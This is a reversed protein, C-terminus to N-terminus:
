DGHAAKAEGAQAKRWVASRLTRRFFYHLMEALIGVVVSPRSLTSQGRTRPYYAMPYEVIKLGARRAEILMEADIFSGESALEMVHAIRRPIVKCAFNVDRLRLGFLTRILLNYGKTLVWRRAGEGRNLRCGAIVRDGAALAILKPMLSFDFPLDADTYLILDGRAARLGSRIAGGLGRNEAHRVLRIRPERAAAEQALAATRDRSGDDVLVLELFAPHSGVERFIAEVLPALNEEENYLPVVVSFSLKGTHPHHRM